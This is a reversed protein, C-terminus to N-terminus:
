YLPDWEELPLSTDVQTVGLPFACSISFLPESCLALFVSMHCSVDVEVKLPLKLYPPPPPPQVTMGETRINSFGYSHTHTYYIYFCKVCLLLYAWM